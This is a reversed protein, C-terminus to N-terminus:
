DTIVYLTSANPSVIADYEAQTLSVINTVADAGTIGTTNSVVAIDIKQKDEASALGATTSSVLAITADTGTSSSVVRTAADYALDTGVNVQAGTEIGNLKTKDASSMSGAASTTAASIGIVPTTGGSSTIPATGTVGQVATDAKGGQAATAYDTAATAAATGLTPLGSLDGYGGSTAVTALGTITEAGQTGTHTARDRLAADSANATAGDAIGDLKTKASSATWWAAVAQFVRQATFARRTTAIGAEAEAQEITAATWERADTLRADSSGVKGDLATQTASSIPKDVDSTNDVNGLGVDEKALPTAIQRYRGDGEAETLYQEHPDAAAVHAAVAGVAERAEIADELKDLNSDHDTADLPTGKVSRRTLNLTV